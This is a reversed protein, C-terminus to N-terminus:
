FIISFSEDHVKLIIIISKDDLNDDHCYYRCLLM